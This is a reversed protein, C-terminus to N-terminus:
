PQGFLQNVEQEGFTLNSAAGEDRLIKSAILRTTPALVSFHDAGRVPLFHVNPNASAGAMFQLAAINGQGTGEFVFVPSRISSLWREPARLELERPNSTDFPLFEPGYGDVDHV